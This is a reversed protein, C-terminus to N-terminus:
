RIEGNLIKMVLKVAKEYTLVYGKAGQYRNLQLQKDIYLKVNGDMKGVYHKDDKIEIFIEM